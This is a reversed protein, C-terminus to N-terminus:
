TNPNGPEKLWAEYDIIDEKIRDTKESCSFCRYFGEGAKMLRSVSPLPSNCKGCCCEKSEDEEIEFDCESCSWWTRDEDDM